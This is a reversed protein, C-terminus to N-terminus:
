SNIVRIQKLMTNTLRKPQSVTAKENLQNAYRKSDTANEPSYRTFIDWQM